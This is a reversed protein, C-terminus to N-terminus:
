SWLSLVSGFFKNYRIDFSLFNDKFNFNEIVAPEHAKRYIINPKTDNGTKIENISILHDTTYLLAAVTHKCIEGWTFPCSCSSEIHGSKPLSLKVTYLKSGQVKFYHVKKNYDYHSYTAEANKYLAKGRQKIKDPAYFDIYKKIKNRM